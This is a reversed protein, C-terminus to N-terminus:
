LSLVLERQRAAVRGGLSRFADAAPEDDPLNLVNVSGERRLTELLVRAAAEDGGIQIVSAAVPTPRVIAAGGYDGLARLPPELAELRALTDDDRQWPEGARRLSRIREHAAELATDAAGGRAQEDADLIWVDVGRVDEFGLKEYLRRAPDNGELVELLVTRAGRGRAEDLVARMLQEGVGRRRAFPTVGIGGIWAREGRVGLNALGVPVGDLLAVRSAALDLDYADVMFRLTREDISFPVLYGEYAATFLGALRGLELEAAPRFTISV